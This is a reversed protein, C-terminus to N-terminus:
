FNIVFDTTIRWDTIRTGESRDLPIEYAAGFSVNEAIKYRAGVAYTLMSEGDSNSAGLNFFDQGEDAIPLRKGEDMVYFYNLEMLPYFDGMRYDVHLAADIFASDESDVPARVGTYGMFNWDGSAMAASLFPNIIGDGEGQLVEKEGVPFEYRLGATVIEGASSDMHLAYKLGAAINAFGEDKAVVGKPNLDVYGDKTAIIALRDTVAFRAQLALINVNGGGTVFENDIKHHAYIPRIDSMIRPDEFNVPNSVPSIMNKLADAHAMGGVLAVSLATMFAKATFTRTIM